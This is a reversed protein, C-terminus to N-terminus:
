PPINDWSASPSLSGPRRTTAPTTHAATKPRVDGSEQRSNKQLRQAIPRKPRQM